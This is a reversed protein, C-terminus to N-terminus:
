LVESKHEHELYGQDLNAFFLPRLAEWRAALDFNDNGSPQFENFAFPNIFYLVVRIAVDVTLLYLARRTAFPVNLHQLHQNNRFKKVLRSILM